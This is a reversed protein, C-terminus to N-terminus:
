PKGGAVPAQPNPDLAKIKENVFDLAGKDRAEEYARIAERKEGLLEHALAKDLLLPVDPTKPNLREAIEELAQKLDAEAETKKGTTFYARARRILWSSKLRSDELEADIIKLAAASQGADIMAEVHEIELVGAGTQAIGEQLGAIREKHEKLRRQVDSRMLYWEPNQKHLKLAANCDELAKKHENQSRLIEARLMYLSATDAPEDAELKLARAIQALADPAKGGLFLVRALERHTPLSGADLAVARELDKTAEPLKGLVRYEVARETLLEASEGSARIRATLEEIEHEPGEHAFASCALLLSAGIHQLTKM